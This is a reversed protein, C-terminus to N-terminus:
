SRVEDLDLAIGRLDETAAKAYIFTSQPNRHGLTDGITKLPFGARLLRVAFSHRLTHAGLHPAKVGATLLYKRAVWSVSASSMPGSPAIVKVFVEQHESSPRLELYGVLAEGVHPLLPLTDTGGGKAHRVYLVDNRWDLDILCLTAVECARLGYYALLILITYDRRGVLTSRDVIELTKEVDVWPAARPMGEQQYIRPTTVQKGLNAPLIGRMHLFGFFGRVTSCIYRMSTRKCGRAAEVLFEDAHRVSLVHLQNTTGEIGIHALFRLLNRRQDAITSESLGRHERLFALYDTVLAPDSTTRFDPTPCAGSERLHALLLWLRRRCNRQLTTRDPRRARISQLQKVFRDIDDEFLQDLEIGERRLYRGLRRCTGVYKTITKETYSKERLHMAYGDLYPDIPTPCIGADQLYDLLRNIGTRHYRRSDVLSGRRAQLQSLFEVVHGDHVTELLIDHDDLYSGFKRGVGIYQGVTAASCCQDRLWCGFAELQGALPSNGNPRKADNKKM